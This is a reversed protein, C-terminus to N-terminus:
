VKAFRNKIFDLGEKTISLGGYVNYDLLKKDNLIMINIIKKVHEPHNICIFNYTNNSEEKDDKKLSFEMLLRFGRLYYKNSYDNKVYEKGKDSISIVNHGNNKVINILGNKVYYLDSIQYKILRCIDKDECGLFECLYEINFDVIRNKALYKFNYLELILKEEYFRKFDINM